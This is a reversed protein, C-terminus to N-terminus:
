LRLQSQSSISLSQPMEGAGMQDEAGACGGFGLDGHLLTHLSSTNPNPNLNPNQALRRLLSAVALFVLVAIAIKGRGSGRASCGHRNALVLAYGLALLAPLLFHSCNIGESEQPWNKLKTEPQLVQSPEQGRAFSRPTHKFFNKMKPQHDSHTLSCTQFKQQKQLTSGNEFFSQYSMLAGDVKLWLDNPLVRTM